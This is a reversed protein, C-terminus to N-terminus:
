GEGAELHILNCHQLKLFYKSVTERILVTSDGGEGKGESERAKM